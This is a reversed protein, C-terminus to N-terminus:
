GNLMDWWLCFVHSFARELEWQRSLQRDVQTHGGLCVSHRKHTESLGLNTFSWASHQHDPPSSHLRQARSSNTSDGYRALWFSFSMSPSTVYGSSLTSPCSSNPCASLLASKGCPSPTKKLQDYPVNETWTFTLSAGLLIEYCQCKWLTIREWKLM